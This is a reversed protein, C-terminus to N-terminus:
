GAVRLNHMKKLLCGGGGNSARPGPHLLLHKQALREWGWGRVGIRCDPRRGSGRELPVPRRNRSQLEGLGVTGKWFHIHGQVEKKGRRGLTWHKMEHLVVHGLTGFTLGRLCCLLVWHLLSLCSRENLLCSFAKQSHEDTERERCRAQHDKKAVSHQVRGEQGLPRGLHTCVQVPTQGCRSGRGCGLWPGGSWLTGVNM